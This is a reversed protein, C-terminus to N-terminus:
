PSEEAPTILTIPFDPKRHYIREEGTVVDRTVLDWATCGFAACKRPKYEVRVVPPLDEGPQAHVRAIRALQGPELDAIAM